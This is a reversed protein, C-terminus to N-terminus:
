GAKKQSVESVLPVARSVAQLNANLNGYSSHKRESENQLPLFRGDEWRIDWVGPRGNKMRMLEVKWCPYGIGPLSNISHSPLSSIKWRSVCATTNINTAKRRLIFGTVKSLEVALQLRRSATFSIEQIEGVVATLAGCKLAEEMAWLVHNEKKLDIFIIRDPNIGFSILAPPFLTRASSIWLSIGGTQMLPSILGSIFGTASALSEKESSLFEHIAGLPFSGNPFAEKIPGLRFDVDTNNAPKFGQLLLIDQQLQSVIAAKNPHM